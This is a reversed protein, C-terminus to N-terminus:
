KKRRTNKRKNENEKREEMLQKNLFDILQQKKDIEEKLKRIEEDRELLMNRKIKSDHELDKIRRQMTAAQNLTFDM